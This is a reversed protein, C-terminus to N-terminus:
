LNYAFNCLYYVHNHVVNKSDCSDIYVTVLWASVWEEQRQKRLSAEEAEQREKEQKEEMEKKLRAEEEQRKM